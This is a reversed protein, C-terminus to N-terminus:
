VSKQGRSILWELIADADEVTACELFIESGSRSILCSYNKLPEPFLGERYLAFAEEDQPTIM